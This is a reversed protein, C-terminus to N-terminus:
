VLTTSELISLWWIGLVHQLEPKSFGSSKPVWLQNLFVKKHHRRAWWTGSQHISSKLPDAIWICGGGWLIKSANNARFGRTFVFCFGRLVAIVESCRQLLPLSVGLGRTNYLHLRWAIDAQLLSASVKCTVGGFWFFFRWPSSTQTLLGLYAPSCWWAYFPM